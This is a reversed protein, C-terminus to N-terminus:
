QLSSYAPRRFKMRCTGAKMVGCIVVAIVILIIALSLCIISGVNWEAPTVLVTVNMQSPESTTEAFLTFPRGFVNGVNVVCSSNSENFTCFQPRKMDEDSFKTVKGSITVNGFLSTKQICYVAYYFGGKKLQFEHKYNIVYASNNHSMMSVCPSAAYARESIIHQYNTFSSVQISYTYYYSDNFIYIVFPCSSETLESANVLQINYSLTGPGATYVPYHENRKNGYYNANICLDTLSQYAEEGYSKSKMLYHPKTLLSEECLGRYVTLNPLTSDHVTITASKIWGPNICQNPFIRVLSNAGILQSSNTQINTLRSFYTGAFFLYFGVVLLSLILLFSPVFVSYAVVCRLNIHFGRGLVIFVTIVCLLFSLLLSSSLVLSPYFLPLCLFYLDNVKLITTCM